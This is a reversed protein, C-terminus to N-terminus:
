RAEGRGKKLDQPYEAIKEYDFIYAADIAKFVTEREAGQVMKLLDKLGSITENIEFRKIHYGIKQRILDSEDKLSISVCCTESRDREKDYAMVIQKLEQYRKDLELLFGETPGNEEEMLALFERWRLNGRFAMIINKHQALGDSDPTERRVM